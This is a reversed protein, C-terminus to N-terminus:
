LLFRKHLFTRRLVCELITQCLTNYDRMSNIFSLKGWVKAKFSQCMFKGNREVLTHQSIKWPSFAIYIVTLGDFCEIVLTGRQLSREFKKLLRNSPIWCNLQKSKTLTITKATEELIFIIYYSSYIEMKPAILNRKSNGYNQTIKTYEGGSHVGGRSTPHYWLIPKWVM